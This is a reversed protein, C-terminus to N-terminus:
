LFCHGAQSRQPLVGSRIFETAQEARKHPSIPRGFADVVKVGGQILKTRWRVAHQFEDRCNVLFPVPLFGAVFIKYLGTVTYPRAVAEEVAKLIARAGSLIAEYRRSVEPHKGMDPIEGASRLRRYKAISSRCIKISEEIIPPDALYLGESCSVVHVIAPSCHNHPEIDDMLASVAALQVRAQDLDSSLCDLGARTQLLVSFKRDELERVLSLM